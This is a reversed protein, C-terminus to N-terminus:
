KGEKAALAALDAARVAAYGLSMGALRVTEAVVTASDADGEVINVIVTAQTHLALSSISGWTSKAADVIAPLHDIIAAARSDTPARGVEAELSDLLPAIVPTPGADRRPAWTEDIVIRRAWDIAARRVGDYAPYRPGEEADDEATPMTMPTEVADVAIQEVVKAPLHRNMLEFLITAVSRWARDFKEMMERRWAEDLVAGLEPEVGRVPSAARELYKRLQYGTWETVPKPEGRPFAAAMPTPRDVARSIGASVIDIWKRVIERRVDNDCLDWDQKLKGRSNANHVSAVIPATIDDVIEGVIQHSYLNDLLDYETKTFNSMGM